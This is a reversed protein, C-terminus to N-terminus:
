TKRRIFQHKKEQNHNHQHDHSCYLHDHAHETNTNLEQEHILLHELECHYINELVNKTLLEKHDHWHSTKNLCLVKDCFRIVQNINHDVIIVATKNEDRVKKLTLLLQDQGLSDLGKTPEDLLIIKPANLLAKAILVRQKEGGSMDKFLYNLKEDIGVEKAHKLIKEDLNKIKLALGAYKLYEMATLPLALNIGSTQPIYSIKERPFNSLETVNQNFYILQGESVKLVGSLIKMLTTKGGGNPGMIGLSEGQNLVFNINKLTLQSQGPYKFGINQANIYEM